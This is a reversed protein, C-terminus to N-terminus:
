IWGQKEAEKLLAPQVPDLTQCPKYKLVQREFRMVTVDEEQADKTKYEDTLPYGCNKFGGLEQWLAYFGTGCYFLKKDGPITRVRLPDQNGNIAMQELDFHPGPCNARNKPSIEYHGILTDHAVYIIGTENQMYHLVAISSKLQPTTRPKNHYGEHEVSITLKNPDQGRHSGHIAIRHWSPSVPTKQPDIYNRGNWTLGNAWARDYISMGQYIDGDEAVFFHSSVPGGGDAVEKFLWGWTNEGGEAIHEVVALLEFPEKAPAVYKKGTGDNDPKRIAGPMWGRDSKAM